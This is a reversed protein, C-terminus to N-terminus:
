PLAISVNEYIVLIAAVSTDCTGNRQNTTLRDLQMRLCKPSHGNISDGGGKSIYFPMLPQRPRHANHYLREIVVLCCSYGNLAFTWNAITWLMGRPFLNGLMRKCKNYKTIFYGIGEGSVLVCDKREFCYLPLRRASNIYQDRYHTGVEHLIRRPKYM